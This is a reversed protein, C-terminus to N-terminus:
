NKKKHKSTMALFDKGLGLDNVNISNKKGSLKITKATVNPGKM